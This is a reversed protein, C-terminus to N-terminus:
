LNALTMRLEKAKKDITALEGKVNQADVMLTQLENDKISIGEKLATIIDKQITVQEAYLDRRREELEVLQKWTKSNYSAVSIDDDVISLLHVLDDYAEYEREMRAVMMAKRQAYFHACKDFLNETEELQTYSLTDLESLYTDFKSRDSSKCDVIVSEGIADMGDRSTIEAISLLTKEQEVIQLSIAAVMDKERENSFYSATFFVVGVFVSVGVIGKTIQNTM